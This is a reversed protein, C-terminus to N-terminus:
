LSRKDWAISVGTEAEWAAAEAVMPDYGRPHNWTMGKLATM